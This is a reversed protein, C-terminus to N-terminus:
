KLGSEANFYPWWTSERLFSQELRPGALLLLYPGPLLSTPLTQSLIDNFQPLVAPSHIASFCCRCSIQIVWLDMSVPQGKRLRGAHNWNLGRSFCKSMWSDGSHCLPEYIDHQLDSDLVATADWSASCIHVLTPFPQSKSHFSHSRENTISQQECTKAWGKLLAKSTKASKLENAMNM